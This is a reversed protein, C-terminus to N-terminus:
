MYYRFSAQYPEVDKIYKLVKGVNRSASITVPMLGDFQSNNWNMKSLALIERALFDPSKDRHSFRLRLSAPIYMGPYTKFFPISGRTYLLYNKDDLEGFTGRLIPYDGDRLFRVSWNSSDLNVFDSFEINLQDLAGQFGEQEESHYSSTKHLVVRPPYNKHEKKYSQLANRLLNYADDRDLHPQRDHRSIKVIGGRLIVGDGKENFVHASSTCMTSRDLSKYFSIGVYCTDIHGEGQAMRWPTGGSKYYLGTYLNWAITADDQISKIENNNKQKRRKSSDYIKPTIIQIPKGISMVKAKLLDRFDYHKKQIPRSRSSTSKEEEVYDLSDLLVEPIACILVKAREKINELEEIFINVAAEVRENHNSIKGLDRFKGEPIESNLMNDVVLEIRLKTGRGYGPFEPFLTPQNSIKAPIGGKCKELWKMVGDQTEGTGVIGVSINEPARASDWDFPGFTSLGYKIDAHKGNKGFELLPEKLVGFKM